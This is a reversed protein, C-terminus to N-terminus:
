EVRVERGTRANAETSVFVCERAPMTAVISNLAAMYKAKQREPSKETPAKLLRASICKIAISDKGAKKVINEKIALGVWTAKKGTAIVASFSATDLYWLESTRERKTEQLGIVDCGKAACPRLLTDIHGIGNVGNVAATRVNFTGYTLEEQRSRARAAKHKMRAVKGEARKGRRKKRAFASWRESLEMDLGNEAWTRAKTRGLHQTCCEWWTEVEGDDVSQSIRIALIRRWKQPYM